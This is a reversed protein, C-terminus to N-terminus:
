VLRREMMLRSRLPTSFALRVLHAVAAADDIGAAGVAFPDPV